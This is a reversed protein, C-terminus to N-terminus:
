KNRKTKFVSIFAVFIILVAGIIMEYFSNITNEGTKPFSKNSPDSQISNKEIPNRPVKKKSTSNSNPSSNKGYIYTVTQEKDLFKGNANTPLKTEDLTYGSIIKSKTTYNDGVNGNQIDDESISKGNEDVYKTTITSTIVPPTNKKYIYTVTQEKDLFKGNANAPLKTEDLTYGSIVKSKTTYNDGVNGNQIDDKSISKGNEDVYKTTITSTIVPPTNKKYIYTVTQEKDLFKGNANTPLKTEDLTYGSIIKSKTTYNDGVNGNQIDDESISKGNEDVYKVVVKSTLVPDVWEIPISFMAAIIEDQSGLIGSTDGGQPTILLHTWLATSRLFSKPSEAIYYLNLTKMNSDLDSFNVSNVDDLKLHDKDSDYSIDYNNKQINNINDNTGLYLKRWDNRTGTVGYKNLDLTYNTQGKVLKISEGPLYRGNTDNNEKTADNSFNLQILIQSYDGIASAMTGLKDNIKQLAETSYDSIDGLSIDYPYSNLNIGSSIARGQWNGLADVINSIDSLSLVGVVRISSYQLDFTVDNNIYDILEQANNFNQFSSLKNKPNALKVKPGATAIESAALVNCPITSLLIITTVLSISKKKM